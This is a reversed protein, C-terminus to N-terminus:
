NSFDLRSKQPKISAIQLNAPTHRDIRYLGMSEAIPKIEPQLKMIQQNEIIMSNMFVVGALFLSFSLIVSTFLLDKKM